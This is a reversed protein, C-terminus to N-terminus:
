QKEQINYAHTSIENFPTMMCNKSFSMGITQALLINLFINKVISTDKDTDTNISIINIGGSQLSKFSINKKIDVDDICNKMGTINFFPVDKKNKDLFKVFSTKKFNERMIKASAMYLDLVGIEHVINIFLQKYEEFTHLVKKNFKNKRFFLFHSRINKHTLYHMIKYLDNTIVKNNFPIRFSKTHKLLIDNVRKNSMVFKNIKQLIFIVNQLSSLRKITEEYKLSDIDTDDFLSIFDSEYQKYEDIYDRLDTMKKSTFLKIVAQRDSLVKVDTIPFCFMLCRSLQGAKSLTEDVNNFTNIFDIDENKYDCLHMKKIFDANIIKENHYMYRQFVRSTTLIKKLINVTVLENDSYEKNKIHEEIAYRVIEPIPVKSVLCKTMSIDSYLLFFSFFIFIKLVDIKKLILIFM